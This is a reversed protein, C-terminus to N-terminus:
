ARYHSALHSLNDLECNESYHVLACAVRDRFHNRLTADQAIIANEIDSLSVRMLDYNVLVESGEVRVEGIGKLELLSHVIRETQEETPTGALAIRRFKPVSTGLQGESLGFTAEGVYLHPWRQFRTRCHESCFAYKIHRHTWSLTDVPVTAGCVPDCSYGLLTDPM